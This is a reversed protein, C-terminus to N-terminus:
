HILSASTAQWDTRQELWKQDAETCKHTLKDNLSGASREGCIIEYAYQLKYAKLKQQEAMQLCNDKFAACSPAMALYSKLQNNNQATIKVNVILSKTVEADFWQDFILNGLDYVILKGKYAETNEVVHPHDAFVADAGLDIMKRYLAEQQPTSHVAYETGGHPFVWVPFYTAYKSIEALEEDTPQRALWHYGCMAIPLKKDQSDLKVNLSVAECM